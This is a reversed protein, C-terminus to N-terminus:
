NKYYFNKNLYLGKSWFSSYIEFQDGDLNFLKTFSEPYLDLQENKKQLILKGNEKLIQFTEEDNKYTGIFKEMQDDSIKILNKEIVNYNGFKWGQSRAISRIIENELKESDKSNSMIIVGKGSFPHGILVCRHGNSEGRIELYDHNGNNIYEFVTAPFISNKNFPATILEIFIKGIENNNTWLNLIEINNKQYEVINGNSHGKTYQNNFTPVLTSYELKLPSFILEQVTMHVPKSGLNLLLNEILVSNVISYKEDKELSNRKLKSILDSIPFNIGSNLELKSEGKIIEKLKIGKFPLKNEVLYENVDNELNLKRKEILSLATLYGIFTGATGVSFLSKTTLLDKSNIESVGFSKTWKLDGKEILSIVLGPVKYHNMRQYLDMKEPKEGKFHVARYLGKEINQMEEKIKQFNQMANLHNTDLIWKGYLVYPNDGKSLIKKHEEDFNPTKDVQKILKFDELTLGYKYHMFIGTLGMGLIGSIGFMVRQKTTM